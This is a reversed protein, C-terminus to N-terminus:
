KPYIMYETITTMSSKAPAYVLGIDQGVIIAVDNVDVSREEDFVKNLFQTVQDLNDFTDVVVSNYTSEIAVWIMTDGKLHEDKIEIPLKENDLLFGHLLTFEDTNDISADTAVISEQSALHDEVDSKVTAGFVDEENTLLYVMRKKCHRNLDRISRYGKAITM